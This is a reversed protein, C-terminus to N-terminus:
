QVIECSEFEGRLREIVAERQHTYLFFGQSETTDYVKIRLGVNVYWVRIGREARGAGTITSSTWRKVESWGDVKYLFPRAYRIITHQRANGIAKPGLHNVHAM